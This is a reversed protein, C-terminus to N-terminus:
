IGRFPNKLNTSEGTAPNKYFIRLLFRLQQWSYQSSFAFCYLSLPYQVRLTRNRTLACLRLRVVVREILTTTRKALLSSQKRVNIHVATM